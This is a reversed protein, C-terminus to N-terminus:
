PQRGQARRLALEARRAEYILELARVAVHRATRHVDLLELIPRDGERYAVSARLAPGSAYAQAQDIRLALERRAQEVEGTAETELAQAESRWRRAEARGLAAAANGRNFLPLDGGIGVVYGLGEGSSSGSSLVGATLALRPIWSRHAVAVERDAQTARARAVDIEPRRVSGREESPRAPLAIPDVADYGFAPEGMLAGLRLQATALVRRATAREDDLADLELAARDADYSSADGQASRSRLADVMAALSTRAEDLRAVLLRSQAADLYATRAEIELLQSEREVTLTEADAGARAVATGLGRRGGLDLTWGIRFFDDHSDLGPVAEREYSLTPNPLVSAVPATAAAVRRRDEFVARRPSREIVRKLFTAEDLTPPGVRQDAHTPVSSVMVLTMALGGVVRTIRPLM